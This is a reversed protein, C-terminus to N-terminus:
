RDRRMQNQWYSTRARTAQKRRRRAEASMDIGYKSQNPNLFLKRREAEKEEMEIMRIVPSIINNSIWRKNIPLQQTMYLAHKNRGFAGKLEKKARDITEEDVNPQVDLAESVFKVFGDVKDLGYEEKTRNWAAIDEIKRSRDPFKAERKPYKRRQGGAVEGAGIAYYRASDPLEINGLKNQYHRRIWDAGKPYIRYGKKRLMDFLGKEDDIPRDTIFRLREAVYKESGQASFRIPNKEPNEADFMREAPDPISVEIHIVKAPNQRDWDQIVRRLYEPDYEFNIDYDPIDLTPRKLITQWNM